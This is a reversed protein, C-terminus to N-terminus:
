TKWMFSLMQNFKLIVDWMFDEGENKVYYIICNTRITRYGAFGRVCSLLILLQGSFRLWSKIQEEQCDCRGAIKEM